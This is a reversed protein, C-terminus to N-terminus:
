DIIQANDIRVEGFLEDYGVVRGKVTVQDGAKISASSYQGNCFIGGELKIHTEDVEEVKGSVQVVQDLYVENAGDQGDAYAKSLATSSLEYKAKEGQIDRHPKFWLYTAYAGGLFVVIVIVWVLKKM